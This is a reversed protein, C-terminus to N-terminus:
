SSMQPAASVPPSLSDHILRLRVSAGVQSHSQIIWAHHCHRSNSGNHYWLLKNVIIIIDMICAILVLVAHLIQISPGGFLNHIKLCTCLSKLALSNSAVKWSQSLHRMPICSLQIIYMTCHVYVGCHGYLFSETEWLFIRALCIFLLV